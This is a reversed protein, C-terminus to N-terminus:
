KNEFYSQFAVNLPSNGSVYGAILMTQIIEEESAGAKKANKAM